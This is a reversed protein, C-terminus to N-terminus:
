VYLKSTSQYNNNKHSFDEDITQMSGSREASRYIFYYDTM